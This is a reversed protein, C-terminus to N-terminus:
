RISTYKMNLKHKDPIYNFYNGSSTLSCDISQDILKGLM